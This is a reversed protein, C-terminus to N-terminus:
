SGVEQEEINEIDAINEENPIEVADGEFSVELAMGELPNPPRRTLVVDGDQIGESILVIDDQIRAITVNRSELQNNVSTMVIGQSDVANRPVPIVDNAIKGPIKVECFMGATMPFNNQLNMSQTDNSVQVVLNFTRNQSDFDAVRNLNGQYRYNEYDSTWFVEVPYDEFRQFWNPQLQAREIKLWKAVENGDISVPIELVSDDALELIMQNMNALKGFEVNKFVIRADFPARITTRELDEKASNLQSQASKVNAKAAAMDSEFQRISNEIMILRERERVYSMEAREKASESEAQNENVLQEFRKLENEAIQTMRKTVELQRQNSENQIELQEVTAKASDLNAEAREMALEYDTPDIQVLVEDEPIINGIELDPHIEVVRGTVQPAIETMRHSEATGYGSLYTQFDQQTAIIGRVKAVAEERDTEKPEEKMSELIKFGAFGLGLVIVITMLRTIVLVTPNKLKETM